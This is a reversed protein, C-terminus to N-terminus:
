HLKTQLFPTAQSELEQLQFNNAAASFKHSSIDNESPVLEKYIDEDFFM